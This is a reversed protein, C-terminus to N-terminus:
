NRKGCRNCFKSGPPMTEGCQPCRLGYEARPGSKRGFYMVAIIAVAVILVLPVIDLLAGAIAFGVVNPNIDLQSMLLGFSANEDGDFTGAFTVAVACTGIYHPANGPVGFEKSGGAPVLGDDPNITYLKYEPSSGLFAGNFIQVTLSTIVLSRDNQNNLTVALNMAGGSAVETPSLDMTVGAMQDFASAPASCSTVMVALLMLSVIPVSWRM